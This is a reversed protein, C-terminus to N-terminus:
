NFNGCNYGYFYKFCTIELMVVGIFALNIMM